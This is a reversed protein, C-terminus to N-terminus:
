SNDKKSIKKTKKKTDKIEINKTLLNLEDININKYDEKYKYNSKNRLKLRKIPIRKKNLESILIFYQSPNDILLTHIKDHDELCLLIGNDIDFKMTPYLSKLYIHHAELQETETNCLVCKYSFERRIKLAWKALPSQRINMRTWKSLKKWAKRQKPTRTSKTTM